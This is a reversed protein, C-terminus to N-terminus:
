VATGHVEGKSPLEEAHEGSPPSLRQHEQPEPDMEGESEYYWTM